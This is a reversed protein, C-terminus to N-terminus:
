IKSECIAAGDNNICFRRQTRGCYKQACVSLFSHQACFSELTAVSERDEAFSCAPIVLLRASFALSYIQSASGVRRTQMNTSEQRKPQQYNMLELYEADDHLYFEFPQVLIDLGVVHMAYTWQM